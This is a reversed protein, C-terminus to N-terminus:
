LLRVEPEVTAYLSHRREIWSAAPKERDGLFHGPVDLTKPLCRIRKRDIGTPHGIRECEEAALMDALVLIVQHGGAVSFASRQLAVRAIAHVHRRVNRDCLVPRHGDVIALRM